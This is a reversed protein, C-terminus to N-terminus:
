SLPQSSDGKRGGESGLAHVLVKLGQEVKKSTGLIDSKPSKLEEMSSGVASKRARSFAAKPSSASKNLLSMGDKEEGV